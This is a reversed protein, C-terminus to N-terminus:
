SCGNVGSLKANSAFHVCSPSMSLLSLARGKGGCIVALKGASLLVCAAPGRHLM